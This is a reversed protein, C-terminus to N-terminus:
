GYHPEPQLYNCQNFYIFLECSVRIFFPHPLCVDFLFYEVLYQIYQNQDYSSPQFTYWGLLCRSYYLWSFFYVAKTHNSRVYVKEFKAWRWRSACGTGVFTNHHRHCFCCGDVSTNQQCETWYFPYHKNKEDQWFLKRSLM